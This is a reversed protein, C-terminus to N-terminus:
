GKGRVSFNAVSLIRELWGKRGKGEEGGRAPGLFSVWSIKQCSRLVESTSEGSNGKGKGQSKGGRPRILKCRETSGDKEALMRGEL